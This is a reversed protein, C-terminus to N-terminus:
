IYYVHVNSLCCIKFVTVGFEGLAMGIRVKQEGSHFCVVQHLYNSIHSLIEHLKHNKYDYKLNKFM